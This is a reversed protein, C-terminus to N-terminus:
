SQQIGELRSSYLNLKFNIHNVIIRVKANEKGMISQSLTQGGEGIGTFLTAYGNSRMEGPIEQATCDDRCFSLLITSHTIYSHSHYSYPYSKSNANSIVCLTQVGAM